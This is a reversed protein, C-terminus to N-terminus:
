MIELTQAEILLAGMKKKIRNKDLDTEV